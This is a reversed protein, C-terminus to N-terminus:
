GHKLTYAKIGCAAKSRADNHAQQMHRPAVVVASMAPKLSTLWVDSRSPTKAKGLGFGYWLVLKLM